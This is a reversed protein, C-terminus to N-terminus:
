PTMRVMMASMLTMPLSVYFNLQEPSAIRRALDQAYLVNFADGISLGFFGLLFIMRMYANTKKAKNM